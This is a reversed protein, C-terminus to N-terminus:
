TWVLFLFVSEQFFRRRLLMLLPLVLDAEALDKRVEPLIM